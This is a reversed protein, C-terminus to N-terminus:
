ELRARFARRASGWSCSWFSRPRNPLHCVSSYWGGTATSPLTLATSLPTLVWAVGNQLQSSRTDGWRQLDGPIFKPVYVEEQGAHHRDATDLQVQGVQVAYGALQVNVTDLGDSAEVEM